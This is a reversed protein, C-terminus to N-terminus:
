SSNTLLSEAFTRPRRWPTGAPGPLTSTPASVEWSISVHRDYEDGDRDREGLAITSGSQVIPPNAEVARAAREITDRTIRRWTNGHITGVIHVTGDSAPTVNVSGSGSTISLTVPGSVKLTRDFKGVVEAAVPAATLGASALVFAAVVLTQARFM